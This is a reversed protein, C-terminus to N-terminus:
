RKMPTLNSLSETMIQQLQLITGSSNMASDKKSEDEHSCMKIVSLDGGSSLSDQPKPLILRTPNAKYQPDLYASGPSNTNSIISVRDESIPVQPLIEIQNSLKAHTVEPYSARYGIKSNPKELWLSSSQKEDLNPKIRQETTNWPSTISVVDAHPISM